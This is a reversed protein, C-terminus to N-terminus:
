VLVEACVGSIWGTVGNYEVQLWGNDAESVYPLETGQPVVSLSKYGKGPGKRINWNGPKTVRVLRDPLAGSGDPPDLDDVADMLAEHSLPGYEGDVVLGGYAKQFARV